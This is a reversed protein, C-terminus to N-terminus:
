PPPAPAPQHAGTSVAVKVTTQVNIHNTQQGALLTLLIMGLTYRTAKKM